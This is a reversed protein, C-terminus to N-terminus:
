FEELLERKGFLDLNSSGKENFGVAYRVPVGIIDVLDVPLLNQCNTALHYSVTAIRHRVKELYDETVEIVIPLKTSSKIGGFYHLNWYKEPPVVEDLIKIIYRKVDDRLSMVTMSRFLDDKDELDSPWDMSEDCFNPLRVGLGFKRRFLSAERLLHVIWRRHKIKIYESTSCKLEEILRQLQEGNVDFNPTRLDNWIEPNKLLSDLINMCLSRFARPWYVKSLRLVDKCYLRLATEIEADIGFKIRSLNNKKAGHKSSESQEVVPEIKVITKNTTM